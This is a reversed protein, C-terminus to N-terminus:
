IARLASPWQGTRIVATGMDVTADPDDVGYDMFQMAIRQSQLFVPLDDVPDVFICVNAEYPARIGLADIPGM